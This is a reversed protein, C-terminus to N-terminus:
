HASWTAEHDNSRLTRLRFALQEVAAGDGTDARRIFSGLAHLDRMRTLVSLGSWQTPDHGYAHAFARLEQQTRGFRVGQFTNALDIERPGFAAEDWDGLLASTGNWLTNGPYADGHVLGEGLPFDLHSYADLVAAAAEQLWSRDNSSLATSRHVTEQLTALPRYPPLKVPPPPLSHLQRLLGGLHEPSPPPGEPQPYHAWLTITYPPCEIPQPVHITETVALGQGALWRTLVVSRAVAERQDWPSVRAVIGDQPLLYVSTAHRRLPTLGRASLGLARCADRIADEQAAYTTTM